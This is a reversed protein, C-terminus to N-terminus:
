DRADPVAAAPGAPADGAGPEADRAGGAPAPADRGPVDEEARRLATAALAAAGLVLVLLVLLYVAPALRPSRFLTARDLVDPVLSLLSRPERGFSLALDVIADDGGDVRLQSSEVAAGSGYLALPVTGDNRLCVSLDRGGISRGTDVRLTSGDRYGAAVRRRVLVDRGRRVTVTLAPGPKTYTGVPLRVQDFDTGDPVAIPAQCAEQRPKLDVAVGSPPAGLSFAQDDRKVAGLVVLLLVGAAVVAALVTGARRM